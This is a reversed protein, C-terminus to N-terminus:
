CATCDCVPYEMPHVSHHFISDCPKPVELSHGGYVGFGPIDLGSFSPMVPSHRGGRLCPYLCAIASFLCQVSHNTHRGPVAHAAVYLLLLLVHEPLVMAPFM